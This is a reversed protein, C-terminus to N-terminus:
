LLIEEYDDVSVDADKLNNLTLQYIEISKALDALIAHEFVDRVSLETAFSSNIKALLQMVLLSHGGLEFFNDHRGVQAVGLVEAWIAALLQETPTQPPAFESSTTINDPAPLAKRDIKGNPTLPFQELVVFFSPVMYDPLQTVLYSRLEHLAKATNNKQVPTNAYKSKNTGLHHTTFQALKNPFFPHSFVVDYDGIGHTNLGSVEIQWGKARAIERLDNLHIGKNPPQALGSRYEALPTSPKAEALWQQNCREFWLHPNPIHRLGISQPSNSIFLTELLTPPSTIEQWDHWIIDTQLDIAQRVHLIVEYRFKTLENEYQGYKPMAQVHNIQSHNQALDLFFEPSVLLEKEQNQYQEIRQKLTQVVLNDDSQYIQVSTHFSELLGFHRVDGIFFRGGPKLLPLAGVVVKELYAADPFYQIVSNIIITDFQGEEFGSMDDALRALLCVHNLAAVQQCMQNTYNLAIESFDMGIYIACQPALRALLLGTGCGIELVHQPNLTKIRAVTEDVWERMETVPIPQQTYSSNWGSINFTLDFVPSQNYTENYLTQWLNVHEATDLNEVIQSTLKLYAVLQKDGSPREKLTVIAQEVMTQSRLVTEIEGLEIRFGRIKVQHDIRELFEINGDPLYRALDGTKYLRGEGFPNAIFKEATLDPRNLYGRAIGAGGIHLEGAVGIPVPQLHSDLIYLQTNAIPKGIPVTVYQQATQSDCLMITACVTTETPGYANFFQRGKAWRNLLEPPCAEGAVVVTKLMPVESPSLVTLASPVLTVHTIKQAVLLETLPSGPLLAVKGAVYLTAGTCLTMVLESISADFNLSAFQLVRHHSQVGFAQIQAQALNCLGTHQLMVGKPQGTSGSTYIVYALNDGHIQPNTSNEPSCTAIHQWDTDLWVMNATTPPLSDQLHSQSLLVPVNADQVMFALREAPYTPDLPVYAGGAKLIGLLGVVMEISREVCIGVLVEPGVGLSQLYHGLQNARQNLERYTLQAQEFIVAIKDPTREVQEEFLQHISKDRPYDTATNNWEILIQQRERETLMPLTAISQDPNAVIAALLTQFHGALHTITEPEFLDTSYRIAGALTEGLSMSLTLDFQGEAQDLELPFITLDAVQQSLLSNPQFDFMTQLLPVQSLDRQPHLLKVLLPFPYTSHEIAELVTANTQGLLARFSPSVSEFTAQLIVPNVLYGVLPAFKPQQRSISTATGVWIKPQGTYRHLLLQFATLLLTFLTVQEQQALQQLQQTLTASLSLRQSAGQYSQVIPRAHDTPLNLLPIDGALKTQWYHELEALTSESLHDNEWRVFEAQSAVLPPLAAVQGSIEAQYLAFLEDNLFGFSSADGFIHHMTLLLVHRTPSLRFLHARLVPGQTLDFPQEYITKIAQDLTAPNAEHSGWQVEGTPQVTQLPHEHVISITTRLAPHRNVLKQLAAHLAIPQLEGQLELLLAMNYAPSDPATQYIFWLAQQSYSLPYSYSSQEKKLLLENLLTRKEQPSLHAFPTPNSM